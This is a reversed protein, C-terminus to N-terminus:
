KSEGKLLAIEAELNRIKTLAPDLSCMAVCALIKVEEISLNFIDENMGKTVGAILKLQTIGEKDFTMNM